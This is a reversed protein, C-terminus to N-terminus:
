LTLFAEKHEHYYQRMRANVNYYRTISEYGLAKATESPTMGLAVCVMLEAQEKPMSFIFSEWARRDLTDPQVVPVAEPHNEEDFEQYNVFAFDIM